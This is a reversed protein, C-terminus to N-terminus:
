ENLVGKKNQNKINNNKTEDDSSTVGVSVAVFHDAGNEKLVDIVAAVSAGTTIVDDCVFVLTNEPIPEKQAYVFASGANAFRETFHLSKMARARYKKRKVLAICPIDLKRAVAEAFLKAQDFGTRRIAHRSRPVYTVVADKLKNEVRESIFACNLSEEMLSALSDYLERDSKEKMSYILRNVNLDRRKPDYNLFKVHRKCNRAYLVKKSCHCFAIPNKCRDCEKESRTKIDKECEPCLIGEYFIPLREKCSFCVAPALLRSIFTTIRM